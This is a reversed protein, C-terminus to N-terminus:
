DCLTMSVREGRALRALKANAVELERRANKLWREPAGPDNVRAQAAERVQTWHRTSSAVDAEIAGVARALRSKM